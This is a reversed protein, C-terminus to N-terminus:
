RAPPEGYAGLLADLSLKAEEETELLYGVLEALPETCYDWTEACKGIINVLRHAEVYLAEPMPKNQNASEVCFLYWSAANNASRRYEDNCQATHLNSM